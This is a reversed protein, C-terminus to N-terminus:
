TASVMKKDYTVSVPTDPSGDAKQPVYKMEVKEYALSFQDVPVDFGAVPTQYSTVFATTFTMTLFEMQQGPKRCTFVATTIHQGRTLASFLKPSAKGMKATLIIDKLDPKGAAMGKGGMSTPNASVWSWSLVQIEGVHKAVQSDGPIGDIKLFCDASVEHAFGATIVLAAILMASIVWRQKM